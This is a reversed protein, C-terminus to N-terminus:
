VFRNLYADQRGACSIDRSFITRGHECVNHRALGCAGVPPRPVDLTTGNFIDVTKANIVSSEVSAYSTWIRVNPESHKGTVPHWGM